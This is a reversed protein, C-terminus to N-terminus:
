KEAKKRIPTINGNEAIPKQECYEAWENMLRRRKDLLDSRRYSAEVASPLAHALAQEAVERAFGTQEAAWDRFTSRFGHVTLSPDIRRVKPLLSLEQLPANPKDGPFIFESQRIAAQAHLIALAADSLPVRHERHGKMRSGPIVWVAAGLDVEDWTALRAESTRTATLIIFEVAHAASGSMARLKAMFAAIGDYNLAAHHANKGTKARLARAAQKPETYVDKLLGRWRAPNDGARHGKAACWDLVSEIRGRLRSATAPRTNWIPDLIETIHRVEVASVPLKGIVPSAYTQLTTRWQGRHKASKWTDERSAIYRLAAEDFTLLKASAMVQAARLGRREDIPDIGDIRKQRLMRARERAESLTLTPYSGMGFDRLRQGVRYRFIWSRNVGGAKRPTVQLHLGGGDHHLGTTTCTQVFRPSLANEVKRPMRDGSARTCQPRRRM